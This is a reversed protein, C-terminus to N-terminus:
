DVGEAREGEGQVQEDERKGRERRGVSEGREGEGKVEEKREGLGVALGVNVVWCELVIM